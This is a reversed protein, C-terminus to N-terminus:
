NDGLREAPIDVTIEKQRPEVFTALAFMAAYILGALIVLTVILRILTPV